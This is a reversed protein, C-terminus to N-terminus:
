NDGIWLYTAKKTTTNNTRAVNVYEVKIDKRQKLTKIAEEFQYALVNSARLTVSHDVPKKRAYTKLYNSVRALSKEMDVYQAIEAAFELCKKLIRWAEEVHRKQTVMVKEDFQNIHTLANTQNTLNHVNILKYEKIKEVLEVLAVLEVLHKPRGKDITKDLAESVMLCDAFTIAYNTYSEAISGVKEFEDAGAEVEVVENFYRLAEDSLEFCCNTKDINLIYNFMGKLLNKIEKVKPSLRGRPRPHLIGTVLIHRAVYGGEMMEMTIVEKLVEPTLTTNICLYPKEIIFTRPAEDESDKNKKKKKGGFTLRKRYRVCDFLNNKVEAFEALYNGSKIGKLEKSWEGAFQFGSNHESLEEMFAQPSGGQPMHFKRPVIQSGIYKQATNKRSKRSPGVFSSYSNHFLEGPQIRNVVDPGLAFGIDQLLMIEVFEKPMDSRFNGYKLGLGIFSVDGHKM